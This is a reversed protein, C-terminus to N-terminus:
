AVTNLSKHDLARKPKVYEFHNEAESLDSFINEAENEITEPEEIIEPDAVRLFAAILYQVVEYISNFGYEDRVFALQKETDTNIRAVIKRYSGSFAKGRKPKIFDINRGPDTYDAFMTEIQEPLMGAEANCAPFATRIFCSVLYQMIQYNSKFGYKDRISALRNYATLDIRIVIKKFLPSVPKLM